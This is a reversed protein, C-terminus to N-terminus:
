IFRIADTDIVVEVGTASQIAEDIRDLPILCRLDGSGVRINQEYGTGRFIRETIVGPFVNIKSPGGESCDRITIGREEILLKVEQGKSLKADVPLTAFLAGLSCGIEVSLGVNTIEGSLINKFGLSRAVFEDVPNAVIEQPTGAQIIKGQNMFVLRDAM